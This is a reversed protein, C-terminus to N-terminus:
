HNFILPLILNVNERLVSTLWIYLNSSKNTFGIIIKHVEEETVTGFISIESSSTEPSINEFSTGAHFLLNQNSKNIKNKFPRLLEIDSAQFTSPLYLEAIKNRNLAYTNLTLAYTLGLM